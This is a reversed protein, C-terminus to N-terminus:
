RFNLHNTKQKNPLILNTYDNKLDRMFINKFTSVIFIESTKM